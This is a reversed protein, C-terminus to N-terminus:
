DHKMIFGHVVVKKMMNVSLCAHHTSLKWRFSDWVDFSGCYASRYFFSNTPRGKATVTRPVLCLIIRIKTHPCLSLIGSSSRLHHQCDTHRHARGNFPCLLLPTYFSFVVHAGPLPTHYRQTPPTISFSFNNGATRGAQLCLHQTCLAAIVPVTEPVSM